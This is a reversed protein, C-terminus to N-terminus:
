LDGPGDLPRELELKARHRINQRFEKAARHVQDTLAVLIPNMWDYCLDYEYGERTFLDRFIKRLFQYDPKEDFRLSRVYNFFITFEPPLGNCLLEPLISIKVDLILQSKEAKNAAQTGQWPLEGKLLYVLSYGLAELDDRRSQEIGLHAAISAYRATGVLSCNEKYPIHSMTKSDRYKRSLNFDILHVVTSNKHIGQM